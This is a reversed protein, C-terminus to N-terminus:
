YLLNCFQMPQQSSNPSFHWKTELCGWVIRSRGLTSFTVTGLIYGLSPDVLNAVSEPATTQTTVVRNQGSNTAAARKRSLADSATRKPVRKNLQCAHM